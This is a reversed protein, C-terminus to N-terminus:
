TSRRSTPSPMARWASLLAGAEDDRAIRVGDLGEGREIEADADCSAGPRRRGVNQIGPRQSFEALLQSAM